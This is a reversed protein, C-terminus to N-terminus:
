PKDGAGTRLIQVAQDADVTQMGSSCVEVVEGLLSAEAALRAGADAYAALLVAMLGAADGYNGCAPVSDGTDDIATAIKYLEHASANMAGTDYYMAAGGGESAYM